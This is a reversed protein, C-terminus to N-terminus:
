HLQSGIFANYVAQSRAGRMQTKAILKHELTLHDNRGM